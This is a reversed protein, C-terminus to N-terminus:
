RVDNATRFGPIPAHGPPLEYSSSKGATAFPCGADVLAAASLLVFLRMTNQKSFHAHVRECDELLSETHSVDSVWYYYFGDPTRARYSCVAQPPDSARGKGQPPTAVLGGRASAM